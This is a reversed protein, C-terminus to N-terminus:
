GCCCLELEAKKEAGFMYVVQKEEQNVELSKYQSVGRCSGRDNSIAPFPHSVDETESFFFRLGHLANTTVM